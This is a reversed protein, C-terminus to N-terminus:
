VLLFEPKWESCIYNLADGIALGSRVAGEVRPHFFGDGGFFLPATNRARLYQEPHLTTPLAYRWRTLQAAKRVMRGSTFPQLAAQFTALLEEEPAGYYRSS